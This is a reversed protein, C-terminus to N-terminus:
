SCTLVFGGCSFMTLPSDAKPSVVYLAILQDWQNSSNSFSFSVEAMQECSHVGWWVSRDRTGGLGPNKWSPLVPSFQFVCCVFQFPFSGGVSDYKALKIWPMLPCSKMIWLFGPFTFAVEGKAFSSGYNSGSSTLQAEANTCCECVLTSQITRVTVNLWWERGPMGTNRTQTQVDAYSNLRM